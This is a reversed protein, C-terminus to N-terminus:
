AYIKAEAKFSFAKKSIDWWTRSDVETEKIAELDINIDYQYVNKHHLCNIQLTNQGLWEYLNICIECTKSQIDIYWDM